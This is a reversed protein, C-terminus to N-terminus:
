GVIVGASLDLTWKVSQPACLSRDARSPVHERSPPLFRGCRHRSLSEITTVKQLFLSRLIDYVFQEFKKTSSIQLWSNASHFAKLGFYPFLFAVPRLSASSLAVVRLCSRQCRLTRVRQM